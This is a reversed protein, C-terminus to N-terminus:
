ASVAFFGGPQVGFPVAVVLMQGTRPHQCRVQMGPGVGPPCKVQFTYPEPHCPVHDSMMAPPATAFHHPHLGQPTTTPPPMVQPGGIGAEYRSDTYAAAQDGNLVIEGDDGYNMSLDIDVEDNYDEVLINSTSGMKEAQPMIGRQYFFQVLQDPIEDLTAHLLARKDHEYDSFKVFQVIDRNISLDDLFQMANFDANGIGVIVISLPADAVSALAQRTAEVDKVAGDTLLLLITYSLPQIKYRSKAQAAALSIVETFVTPGSMTLPTRFVGKYASLIGEVGQVETENGVQFCHRVAGDFKAGFGWVPFRQNSDYKALISGVASIAKEYGNMQGNQSLHHLTGDVRPDGNSGTFDIAVCQVCFLSKMLIM